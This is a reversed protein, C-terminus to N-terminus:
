SFLICLVFRLGFGSFFPHIKNNIKGKTEGLGSFESAIVLFRVLPVVIIQFQM